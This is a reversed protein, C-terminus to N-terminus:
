TLHILSPLLLSQQCTDVYTAIHRAKAVKDSCSAYVLETSDTSNRTEQPKDFLYNAYRASNILVATPKTHIVLKKVTCVRIKDNWNLLTM